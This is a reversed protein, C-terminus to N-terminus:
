IDNDYDTKIRSNSSYGDTFNEPEYHLDLSHTRIVEKYFYASKRPYRELTDFDVEYLGFKISYIFVYFNHVM